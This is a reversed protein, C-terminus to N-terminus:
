KQSDIGAQHHSIYVASVHLLSSYFVIYETRITTNIPQQLLHIATCVSLNTKPSPSYFESMLENLVVNCM